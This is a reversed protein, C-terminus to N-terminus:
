RRKVIMAHLVTGQACLNEGMSVQSMFYHEKEEASKPVEENKVQELAARLEEPAIASKEAQTEKIQAVTKDV